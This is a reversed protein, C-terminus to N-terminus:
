TPWFITREDFPYTLDVLSREDIQASVRGSVAFLACLVLLMIRLM